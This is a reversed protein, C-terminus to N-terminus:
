RTAVGQANVTITETVGNAKVSITPTTSPTGTTPIGNLGAYNIDTFNTITVSAPVSFTQNFAPTTGFTTGMYLTITNSAYHVGWNNNQKGMMANLQAQRLDNILQDMTNALADQAFFRAAFGTGMTGLVLLLSIVLLLEVLTFGQNITRVNKM